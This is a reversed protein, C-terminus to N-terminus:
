PTDIDRVCRVSISNNREIPTLNLRVFARMNDNHDNWSGGRFVRLNTEDNSDIERGDDDVYPFSFVREGTDAFDYDGDDIGYITNVWEWVNGAMDYAGIWSVGNVYSRVPATYDYGDDVGTDRWDDYECNKDCYNVASHESEAFENGWPYILSEVGRAAFEWEAETPLRKDLSVCYDRAEFWTINEVPLDDGIFYNEISKRGGNERFQVQTVETVDIWFPEEFCQRGWSGGDGMEFCGTPVLVMPVGNFVYIYPTWDRNLTGVFGWAREVAIDYSTMPEPILTITATPADTNIGAETVLAEETETPNDAIRTGEGGSNNFLPPLFISLIIIIALIGVFSGVLPLNLKSMPSPKPRSSPAPTPNPLIFAQIFKILRQMDAEFDPDDRLKAAGLYALNHLQSPLQTAAPLQAQGLVVPIVQMQSRNLGLSVEYRVWDDPNNIRQNLITLWDEGILVLMIDCANVGDTIEQRFDRGLRFNHVDKIINEKGFVAELEKYVLRAEAASDLRRYSIFIKPM